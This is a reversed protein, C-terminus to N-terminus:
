FCGYLVSGGSVEVVVLEFGLVVLVLLIRGYYIVWLDFWVLGLVGEMVGYWEM